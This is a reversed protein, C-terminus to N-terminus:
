IQNYSDDIFKQLLNIKNTISKITKSESQKNKFIHYFKNVKNFFIVFEFFM